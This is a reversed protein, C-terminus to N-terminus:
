KYFRDRNLLPHSEVDVGFEEIREIMRVPVHDVTISDVVRRFIGVDVAAGEGRQAIGISRTVNLESQLHSESPQKPHLGGLVALYGVDVKPCGSSTAQSATHSFGRSLDESNAIGKGDINSPHITYGTDEM